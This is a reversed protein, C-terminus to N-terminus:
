AKQCFNFKFIFLFRSINAISFIYTQSKSNCIMTQFDLFFGFSSFFCKFSYNAMVKKFTIDLNIENDNKTHKFIKLDIM